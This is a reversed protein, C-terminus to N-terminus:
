PKYHKSEEDKRHQLYPDQSENGSKNESERKHSVEKKSGPQGVPLTGATASWKEPSRKKAAEETPAAEM